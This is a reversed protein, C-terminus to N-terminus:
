QMQQYRVGTDSALWMVWLHYARSGDAKHPQIFKPLPSHIDATETGQALAVMWIRIKHENYKCIATRKLKLDFNEAKQM